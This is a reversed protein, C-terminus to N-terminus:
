RKFHVHLVPLGDAAHLNTTSASASLLFGDDIAVQLEHFTRALRSRNIAVAEGLLWRKAQDMLEALALSEALEGPGIGIFRFDRVQVDAFVFRDSAVALYAVCRVNRRAPVTVVTIDPIRSPLRGAQEM